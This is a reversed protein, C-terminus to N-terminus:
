VIGEPPLGHERAPAGPQLRQSRPLERLQTEDGTLFSVETPRPGPAPGAPRELLAGVLSGLGAAAVVAAVAAVGLRRRAPLREPVRFRESPREAPAARLAETTTRLRLDFERCSGCGAVHRRLLGRELQSLEADLDLSSWQRARECAPNMAPPIEGAM